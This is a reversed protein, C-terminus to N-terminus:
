RGPVIISSSKESQATKAQELVKDVAQSMAQPFKEAAEELTQAEIQCHVPVPGNPSMLQTYGFFIPTRGDDVSGNADVPTLRRLSAFKLDTFNEERYMHGVTFDIDLKNTGDVM